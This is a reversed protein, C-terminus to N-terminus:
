LPMGEIVQPHVVYCAACDVELLEGALSTECVQKCKSPPQSCMNNKNNNDNQQKKSSSNSNSNNSNSDNNSNSKSNSKSNSNGNSSRISQM